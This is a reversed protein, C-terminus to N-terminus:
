TSSSLSALERVPHSRSCGPTCTTQRSLAPAVAFTIEEDLIYGPRPINAGGLVATVGLAVILVALVFPTVRADADPGPVGPMAM